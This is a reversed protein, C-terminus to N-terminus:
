GSLREEHALGMIRMHHPTTGQLEAYELQVGLAPSTKPRIRGSKGFDVVDDVAELRGDRRQALEIAGQAGPRPGIEDASQEGCEIGHVGAAGVARGDGEGLQHRIAGRQADRAIGALGRRNGGAGVDALGGLDIGHRGRDADVPPEGRRPLPGRHVAQLQAGVAGEVAVGGAAEEIVRAGGRDGGRELVPPGERQAEVELRGLEHPLNQRVPHELVDMGEGGAVASDAPEQQREHQAAFTCCIEGAGEEALGDVAASPDIVVGQTRRAQGAVHSMSTNMSRAAV